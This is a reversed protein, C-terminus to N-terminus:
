NKTSFGQRAIPERRLAYYNGNIYVIQDQKLPDLKDKKLLNEDVQVAEVEGLYIVHTGHEITKIVKCEINIPFEKIIPVKVILGKEKTLSLEKWKDKKKGTRTGCFDIERVQEASPVNIVYEEVKSILSTSHRSPRISISMVPPESVVRAVWALTILNAEDWNGVSIVVAPSIIPTTSKNIQKKM